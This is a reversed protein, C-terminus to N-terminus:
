GKGKNNTLSWEKEISERMKRVMIYATEEEGATMESFCVCINKNEEEILIPYLDLAKQKPYLRWIRQDKNDKEKGVFGAKMLKQVAKTTTTKDVKLLISLDILSIGENECIRTVFIFQGKQLGYERLKHDNMTQICRSLAGIERLIESDLRYMGVM